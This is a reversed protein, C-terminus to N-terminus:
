RNDKTPGHGERCDKFRHRAITPATERQMAVRAETRNPLGHHQIKFFIYGSENSIVVSNSASVMKHFPRVLHENSHGILM